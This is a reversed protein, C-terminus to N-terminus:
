RSPVVCNYAIQRWILTRDGGALVIDGDPHSTLEAGKPYDIVPGFGGAVRRVLVGEMMVVVVMMMIMVMVMGQVVLVLVVTVPVVVALNGIGVAPNRPEDAGECVLERGSALLSSLKGARVRVVNIDEVWHDTVGDNHKPLALQM